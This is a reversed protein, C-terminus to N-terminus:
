HPGHPWPPPKLPATSAPASTPLSQPSSSAETNGEPAQEPGPRCLCGLQLGAGAPQLFGLALLTAPTPTRSDDKQTQTM